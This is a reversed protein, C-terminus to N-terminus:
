DEPIGKKYKLREKVTLSNNENIVNKKGAHLIVDLL